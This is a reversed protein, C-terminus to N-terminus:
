SLLPEASFAGPGNGGALDSVAVSGGFDVNTRLAGMRYGVYVAGLCKNLSKWLGELLLGLEGTTERRPENGTTSVTFSALKGLLRKSSAIRAEQSAIM